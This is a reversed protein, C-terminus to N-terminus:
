QPTFFRNDSGEELGKKNHHIVIHYFVSLDVVYLIHLMM